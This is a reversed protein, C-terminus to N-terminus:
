RRVLDVLVLIILLILLGILLADRRVEIFNGEIKIWPENHNGKKLPLAGNKTLPMPKPHLPSSPVSGGYYQFRNSREQPPTGPEATFRTPISGLAAMGHTPIPYDPIAPPGYRHDMDSSFTQMGYASQLDMTESTWDLCFINGGGCKKIMSFRNYFFYFSPDM